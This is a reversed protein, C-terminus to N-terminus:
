FYIWTRGANGGLTLVGEPWDPEGVVFDPYGDGNIDGIFNTTRTFADGTVLPPDFVMPAASRTTSGTLPGYWLRADGRATGTEWAGILFETQGDQNLDGLLGRTVSYGHGLEVGFSDFERNPLDNTVSFGTNFNSEGTFVQVAGGLNGIYVGIDRAGRGDIDGLSQVGAGYFAPTGSGIERLMDWEIRQLGPGTYARGPAIRVRGPVAPTNASGPAGLVLDARGDLDIRGPTAATSGILQQSPATTSRVAFGQLNGVPTGSFGAPFTSRGLIVYQVGKFGDAGIAGIAVDSRGDGDFDGATTVETGFFDGTQEGRICLVGTSPCAGASVVITTSSWAARNPRGFFVYASNEEPSGVAFDAIGDGNVDGVGEVGGFVADGGFGAGGEITVNPAEPVPSSGLSGRGFFIYAGGYGSIVFDNILDGDIDGVSAAGLGMNKSTALRVEQMRFELAIEISPALPTLAGGLDLSRVACFLTQGTPFGDVDVAVVTGPSGADDSFFIEAADWDAESGIDTPACRVQTTELRQGDTDAEATWQLRVIGGRRDVVTALALDDIPNTPPASDIDVRASASATGEGTTINLRVLVDDGEQVDVCASVAGGTITAAQGMMTGVDITATSSDAADTTGQVLIQLGATGPDCDDTMNLAAGGAPTTLNVNALDAVTVVCSRECGTNGVPDTACAQLEIEGGSSFTADFLIVQGARDDSTEMYVNSTSGSVFATVTTEDVNNVPPNLVKILYDFEPTSTDNDDSSPRLVSGCVPEFFELDPEACDPFLSIPISTGVTREVEMRAFVDLSSQDDLSPLAVSDFEAVGTYPAELGAEAVCPTTGFIFDTLSQRLEVTEGPDTCLVRFSVDCDDTTPDLDAEYDIAGGTSGLENFLTGAGPTEIELQPADTRVRVPIRGEGVNGADDTVYVCLDQSASTGLTARGSFNSGMLSIADGMSGCPGATASICREGSVSGSADIQIGETVSDLDDTDVFLRDAMPMGITVSCAITDVNWIAPATRTVNGAADQCEAVVSHRGEALDVVGFEAVASEGTTVSTVTSVSGDVELRVPFGSQEVDSTVRFDTQFGPEDSQDDAANLVSESADPFTIACSVGECRVEIPTPFDQSCTSGDASSTVRVTLTNTTSGRNGLVVNDFRAMGSAVLQTPGPMGNVFLQLSTGDPTLAAVRVNVAFEEGCAEGDVDDLSGLVTVEGAAPSPDIFNVGCSDVLTVPVARSRVDCDDDCALLDNLGPQLTLRMVVRGDPGVPQIADPSAGPSDADAANRYLWIDDGVDENRIAVTVDIQVGETAPDVDAALTLTTGPTPSEIEVSKVDDDGCGVAGLGSALALACLFRMRQNAM